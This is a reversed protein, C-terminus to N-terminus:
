FDFVSAVKILEEENIIENNTSKKNNSETRDIYVINQKEKVIKELERVQEELRKIKQDKDQQKLRKEKIAQCIWNSVNIGMEKLEIIFEYDEKFKRSFSIPMTRSEM